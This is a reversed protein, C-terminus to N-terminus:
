NASIDCWKALAHAIGGIKYEHKPGFDGLTALVYRTVKAMDTGPKPTIGHDALRGGRFFLSSLAECFPNRLSWEDPTLDGEPPLLERWRGQFACDLDSVEPIGGDAWKGEIGPHRNAVRSAVAAAYQDEAAKSKEAKRLARSRKGM